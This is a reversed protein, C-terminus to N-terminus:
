MTEVNDDDNYKVGVSALQELFFNLNMSIINLILGKKTSYSVYQKRPHYKNM